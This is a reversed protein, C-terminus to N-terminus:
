QVSILKEDIPSLLPMLQEVSSNFWYDKDEPLIIVPMRKHYDSCKNNPKTTLTVLQPQESPFYIGGMFLSDSDKHSFLNKQKKGNETRWEYWGSCPVLCRHYQFANKFTPKIAVTESQANILLKKSWQPQIGWSVDLQQFNGNSAIITSVVETPRLDSNPKVSFYINFLKSVTEAVKDSVCFRGCM